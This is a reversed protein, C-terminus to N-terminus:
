FFLDVNCDFLFCISYVFNMLIQMLMKFGGRLFICFVPILLITFDIRFFPNFSVFVVLINKVCDAHANAPVGHKLKLKSNLLYDFDLRCDINVGLLKVRKVSSIITNKIQIEIPSTSSTILNCKRANSKLRNNYFWEFINITYRRLKKLEVERESSFTYPMNDDTYSAVDLDGIGFFLDCIYMNFLLPGLISGQRVGSFLNDFNSYSGNM